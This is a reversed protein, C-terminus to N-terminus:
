PPMSILSDGNSRLAGLAPNKPTDGPCFQETHLHTANKQCDLASKTCGEAVKILRFLRPAHNITINITFSPDETSPVSQDFAPRICIM